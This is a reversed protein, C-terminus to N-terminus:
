ETEKSGAECLRNVVSLFVEHTRQGDPDDDFRLMPYREINVVNIRSDVKEQLERVLSARADPDAFPGPYQKLLAFPVIGYLSLEPDVFFQLFTNTDGDPTSTKFHVSAVRGGRGLAVRVRSDGEAWELLRELAASYEPKQSNAALARVEDLTWDHSPLRSRRDEADATPGVVRPVLSRYGATGYLQLEIGAVAVQDMHRNLFELIRRLEDPISDAVVLARVEGARMKREVDDWYKDPDVGEPLFEALLRDPDEGDSRVREHFLERLREGALFATAFAVYGLIQGVVDRKLRADSRRKVEVFTPTADQDLFIHDVAWRDPGEASDAIGAERAVLLWKRPSEPTLLDGALLEPHDGILRQFDDESPFSQRSVRVPEEGERLIFAGGPLTRDDM